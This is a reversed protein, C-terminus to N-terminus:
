PGQKPQALPSPSPLQYRTIASANFPSGAPSRVYACLANTESVMVRNGTQLVGHRSNFTVLMAGELHAGLKEGTGSVTILLNQLKGFADLQLPTPTCGLKPVPPAAPMNTRPWFYWAGLGAAAALLGVTVTKM